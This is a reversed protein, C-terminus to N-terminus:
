QLSLTVYSYRNPTMGIDAYGLREQVIKSHIGDALLLTASTLRLGHFRIRLAGDCRYEQV